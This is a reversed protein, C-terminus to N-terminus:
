RASITAVAVREPELKAIADQGQGVSAMIEKQGLMMDKMDNQSDTQADM